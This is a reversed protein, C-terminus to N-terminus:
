RSFWFDSSWALTRAGTNPDFVEVALGHSEGSFVAVGTAGSSARLEGPKGEAEPELVVIEVTLYGLGGLIKRDPGCVEATWREGVDYAVARLPFRFGGAGRPFSAYYITTGARARALELTADPESPLPGLEVRGISLDYVLRDASASVNMAADTRVRTTGPGAVLAGRRDGSETRGPDYAPPGSEAGARQRASALQEVWWRPPARGLEVTLAAVFGDVIGPALTGDAEFRRAREWDALLRVSAGAHALAALDRQAFAAQIAAGECRLALAELEDPATVADNVPPDSREPQAPSNTAPESSPEAAPESKCAHTLTVGIGILLALSRM